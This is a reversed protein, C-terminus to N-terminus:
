GVVTLNDAILNDTGGSDTLDKLMLLNGMVISHSAHLDLTKGAYAGSDNRFSCFNNRCINKM